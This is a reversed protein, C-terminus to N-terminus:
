EIRTFFPKATNDVDWVQGKLGAELRSQVEEWSYRPTSRIQLEGKLVLKENEFLLVDIKYSSNSLTVPIQIEATSNAAIVGIEDRSKNVAFNNETEIVYAIAKITGSEKEWINTLYLDCTINVSDNTEGTKLLYTADVFLHDKPYTPEVPKAPESPTLLGSYLIMSGTVIIIIVTGLLIGAEKAKKSM